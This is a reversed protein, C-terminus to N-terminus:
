RVEAMVVHARLNGRIRGSGFRKEFAAAVAQVAREDDACRAAIEMKLPTGRCFAIAVDRPSPAHATMDITEITVKRFGAHRLDSEILEREYYGHPTRELFRTPDDPFAAVMAESVTRAIENEALSAWTNFLFTGGPKLVRLIECYGRQKDLFFMVGFQCAVVDFSASEFPLDLADAQKWEVQRGVGKKAAIDLMAQNLDTAVIKVEPALRAAMARTLVGSGAAVELISGPHCDAVRSALDSAYGEFLIPVLFQEYIAPIDGQFHADSVTM